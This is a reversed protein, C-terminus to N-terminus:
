DTDKEDTKDVEDDINLFETFESFKREKIKNTPPKITFDLYKDFFDKVKRTTKVTGYAVGEHYGKSPRNIDMGCKTSDQSGSTVNKLQYGKDAMLKIYYKEKENVESEPCECLIHIKYGYPNDKKVWVKKTKDYVYNYLGHSKLSLDIHTDFGGLHQALRDLLSKSALGVYAHRFQNEDIRWFLYIGPRSPANPCLEKIIYQHRARTKFVRQYDIKEAM